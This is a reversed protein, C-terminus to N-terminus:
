TESGQSKPVMNSGFIRVILMNLFSMKSTAQRHECVRTMAMTRIVSLLTIFALWAVLPVRATIAVLKTNPM